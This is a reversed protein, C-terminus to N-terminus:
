ATGIFILLNGAGPELWAPPVDTIYAEGASNTRVSRIDSDHQLTVTRNAVSSTDQIQIWLGPHEAADQSDAVIQIDIFLGPHDPLPGSYVIPRDNASAGRRGGGRLQHSERMAHQVSRGSVILPVISSPITHPPVVPLQPWQPAHGSSQAQDLTRSSTYLSTCWPCFQIHLQVPALFDLAVGGQETDILVPMEEWVESCNVGSRLAAAQALADAIAPTELLRQRLSPDALVERLVNAQPQRGHTIADIIHTLAKDNSLM